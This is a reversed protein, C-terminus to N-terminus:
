RIPMILANGLFAHSLLIPKLEDWVTIQIPIKMSVKSFSILVDLVFKANLKISLPQYKKNLRIQYSCKADDTDIQFYMQDEEIKLIIDQYVPQLTKAIQHLGKLINLIDKTLFFEIETEPTTPIINTWQPFQEDRDDLYHPKPEHEMKHSYHARYGDCAVLHNTDRYVEQLYTRTKDTSRALRVFELTDM